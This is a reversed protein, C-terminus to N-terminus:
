ANKHNRVVNLVNGMILITGCIYSWIMLIIISALSGYVVPYKSSLGIFSSFVMSFGVLTVSAAMAGALRPQRPKERPATMRYIIYIVLVLIVLLLLFRFWHWIETLLSFGFWTEIMNIFWGGTVVVVGSLYVAILLLLSFVFSFVTGLLGKFRAQGQIDTMSHMIARFAASASTAVVTIGMFLMGHSFNEGVYALYDSVTKAISEPLIGSLFDMLAAETLDLSGLMAAVCILFPFISLTLFYAFEAASRAIRKETYIRFMKISIDVARKAAKKMEDVSGM